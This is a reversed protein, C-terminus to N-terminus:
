RRQTRKSAKSRGDPQLGSPVRLHGKNIARTLWRTTVSAQKAVWVKWNRVAPRRWGFERLANQARKLKMEREKKRRKRTSKLATSYTACKRSCYKKKWYGAANLYYRGCRKCKGVNKYLPNTVLKIFLWAALHDQYRQGVEMELKSGTAVRAIGDRGPVLSLDIGNVHRNLREHRRPNTHSWTSFNSNAGLWSDVYDRLNKGLLAASDRFSERWINPREEENAKRYIRQYEAQWNHEGNLYVVIPRVLEETRKLIVKRYEM